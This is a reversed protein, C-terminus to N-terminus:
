KEPITLVETPTTREDYRPELVSIMARLYGLVEDLNFGDTRQILIQGSSRALADEVYNTATLLVVPVNALEPEKKLRELLQFGDMSPLNLDLLVLDPQQLRMMQLADAGDYAYHVKVGRESAELVRRVLQCFGRDDDVILVDRVNGIREIEQLIQEAMIPKALCARVALQNALWAQSPLSCRILPVPVSLITGDCRNRERPPENCIVAHPHYLMVMENLHDVDKVQIVEYEEIYRAILEAVSPDSDIVLISAQSKPQLPESFHTEPSPPIPLHYEVLPLTFTFTSGIGEQSTVWIHGDHAEIFRKSIALGLGAGERRRHLSRDIQYFEDFIYPLEDPPIGPGTDSISIQLEHESQTASLRVTGTKTFRAANNLLNLLVQRIRARDIELKPLNPVIELEIAVPQSRFLNRAIELTDRLLPELATLEKNLSFGVMDFRSLDLVDDIMGLLHRSSRYIQYVDRRLTPPWFIDGYVEPSLYMVQSFGMILNLPTRLEHSINAAFQEKMRRAKDAQKRAQILEHQTRRLFANALDSSKLLRSLEARHDRVEDLLRDAQQQTSQMWQLATYLTRVVLRTIVVGLVLVVFLDPLPYSRTGSYKLWTMMVAVAAATMLESGSVLMASVLILLLSLFPLWPEAFLWLALLLGVSLGWILLHRALILRVGVLVWVWLGLVFLGAFLGAAIIPYPELPLTWWMALFSIVTLVIALRHTLQGYLDELNAPDGEYALTRTWILRLM